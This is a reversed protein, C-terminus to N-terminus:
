NAANTLVPVCFECFGESVLKNQYRELIPRSEDIQQGESDMLSFVSAWFRGVEEATHAIKFVLYTGEPLTGHHVASNHSFARDVVLCVDYRCDDPATTVANDHAIGYIVDEPRFLGNAKAWEKMAGMLAYNEEGYLGTRRMYVISHPPIQEIMYQMAIKREIRKTM